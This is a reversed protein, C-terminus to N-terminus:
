EVLKKPHQKLPKAENRVRFTPIGNAQGGGV